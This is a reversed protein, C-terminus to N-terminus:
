NIIILSKNNSLINKVEDKDYEYNNQSFFYSFLPENLQKYDRSVIVTTFDKPFLIEQSIGLHYSLLARESPTFKNRIIKEYLYNPSIALIKAIEYKFKTRLTSPLLKYFIFLKNSVNHNNM